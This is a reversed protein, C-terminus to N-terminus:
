PSDIGRMGVQPQVSLEEILKKAAQFQPRLRLCIRAQHIAEAIQGTEALLKALNFRWNVQGYDLALARRYYEIAAEMDNERTCIAAMSALAGAPADPQSCRQELLIRAQATAKEALEKHEEIEALRNAVYSLRGTDDAAIVVALDPRSAHNIYVEVVDAFLRGDLEVAKKLKVLSDEISGETADLFGAVFCATPDCPALRYGTQIHEIGNPDNLIFKELQGAVCYTAGYVPCLQRTSHLENVIRPVFGAVQEPIVVEATNPDTIRSISYWRYVNLWHRYKANEAECDAAAAAHSILETFEDNTGQWDKRRLNSESVLAKAWNAEGVRASDAALLAWLWIASVCVFGAICFPRRVRPKKSVQLAPENKPGTRVLVLLLACSVASLMANAPLHQGFDSLSHLLIALLGFGLGYAASRIPISGTTVNRVYAAWVITAFTVLLLLGLIGTEEAAQAYENEAHSALAPSTSRDFMPYVVEHTGMGTGLLPFKTWAVAIDRVIQGRGHYEHIDRVTALRDYVADFGIYLV